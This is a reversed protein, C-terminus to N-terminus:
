PLQDGKRVRRVLAEISSFFKSPRAGFKAYAARWSAIRPHEAINALDPNDIVLREADRLLAGIQRNEVAGNVLGAVVVVGRVYDPYMQFVDPAVGYKM